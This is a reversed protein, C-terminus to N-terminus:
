AAAVRRRRAVNKRTPVSAKRPAKARTALAQGITATLAEPDFPKTLLFTPEVKDGTLFAEPFGTVFIVPVESIRMIKEVAEIGSDGDKLQVDALILDPRFEESLAVAKAETDAVGVVTHGASRVTVVIDMAIVAEDEIVLVRAGADKQLDLRAQLLKERADDATLGLIEAANAVSFGELSVLLLIQRDLEPLAAIQRELEDDAGMEASPEAAPELGECVQHFARFTELKPDGGGSVLEPDALVVELFQRVYRDGREQTGTLARTYRRLYPLVRVMSDSHLAM